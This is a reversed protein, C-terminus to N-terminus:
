PDESRIVTTSPSRLSDGPRPAPCRPSITLTKLGVENALEEEQALMQFDEELRNLLDKVLRSPDLPGRERFPAEQNWRKNIDGSADMFAMPLRQMLEVRVLDVEVSNALARLITDESVPNVMYTIAVLQAVRSEGLRRYFALRARLVAEDIIALTDTAATPVGSLRLRELLTAMNAVFLPDNSAM